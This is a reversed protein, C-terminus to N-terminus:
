SRIEQRAPDKTTHGKTQRLNVPVSRAPLDRIEPVDRSYDNVPM